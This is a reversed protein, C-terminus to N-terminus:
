SLSHLTSHCWKTHKNNTNNKSKTNKIAAAAKIILTLKITASHHILQVNLFYTTLVHQIFKVKTKM